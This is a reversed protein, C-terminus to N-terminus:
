SERRCGHSVTGAVISRRSPCYGCHGKRDRGVGVVPEHAPIGNGERGQERVERVHDGALAHEVDAAPGARERRLQDSPEARVANCGDVGRLREDSCRSLAM